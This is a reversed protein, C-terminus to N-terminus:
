FFSRVLNNQNIQQFLNLISHLNLEYEVKGPAINGHLKDPVSYIDLRPFNVDVESYIPDSFTFNFQEYDDGQLDHWYKRNILKDKFALRQNVSLIDLIKDTQTKLNVSFQTKMIDNDEVLYSALFKYTNPMVTLQTLGNIIHKHLKSRTAKIEVYKNGIKFDENVDIWFNLAKKDILLLEELFILEALLGIQKEKGLFKMEELFAGYQSIIANYADQFNVSSVKMLEFIELFIKEFLQWLQPEDCSVKITGNQDSSIDLARLKTFISMDCESCEVYFNRAGDVEAYYAKFRSKSNIGTVLPAGLSYKLNWNLKTKTM